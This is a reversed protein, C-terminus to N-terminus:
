TSIVFAFGVCQHHFWRSFFFNINLFVINSVCMHSIFNLVAIQSSLFFLFSAVVSTFMDGLSNRWCYMACLCFSYFFFYQSCFFISFSTFCLECDFCVFFLLSINISFYDFFVSSHIFFFTNPIFVNKENDTDANLEMSSINYKLQTHSHIQKFTNKRNM